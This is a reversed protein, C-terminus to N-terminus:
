SAPRLAFIDNATQVGIGKVAVLEDLTMAFVSLYTDKGVKRLAAAGPFEDPIKTEETIETITPAVFQARPKETGKRVLGLKALQAPSLGAVIAEVDVEDEPETRVSTPAVAGSVPEKPYLEHFEEISDAVVRDSTVIWTSNIFKSVRCNVGENENLYAETRFLPAKNTDNM